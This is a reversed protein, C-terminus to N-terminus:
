QMERLVDRVDDQIDPNDLLRIFARVVDALPLKSVDLEVAAENSWRTLKRYLEPTLDVTIRVPKARLATRGAAPAEEATRRTTAAKMREKRRERDTSM